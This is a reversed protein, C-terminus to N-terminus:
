FSSARVTGDLLVLVALLSSAFSVGGVVVSQEVTLSRAFCVYKKQKRQFEVVVVMVLPSRRATHNTTAAAPALPTVAKAGDVERRALTLLLRCTDSTFAVVKTFVGVIRSEADSAGVDQSQSSSAL